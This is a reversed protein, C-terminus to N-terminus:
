CLLLCKAPSISPSLDVCCSLTHYHTKTEFHVIEGIEHGNTLTLKTPFMFSNSVSLSPGCISGQFIALLFSVCSTIM